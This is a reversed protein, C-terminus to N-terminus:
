ARGPERSFHTTKEQRHEHKQKKENKNEKKVCAGCPAIEEGESLSEFFSGSKTCRLLGTTETPVCFRCEACVLLGVEALETQLKTIGEKIQEISMDSIHVVDSSGLLDSLKRYVQSRTFPGHKWLMDVILHLDRRGDLLEPTTKFKTMLSM